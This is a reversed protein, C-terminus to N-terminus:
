RVIHVPTGIPAWSYLFRAAAYPVNVCGHTGGTNTGPQSGGNSGPGFFGRWPADHIFYGGHLFEMAYSVPSPPYWFRSGRPWPSVFTYPSYKAFISYNGAPTPLSPDGTTVATSLVVHSGELAQLSQHSLSITISKAGGAQAHSTSVAGGAAVLGAGLLAVVLLLVAFARRRM